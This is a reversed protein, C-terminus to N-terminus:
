GLVLPNKTLAVAVIYGFLGLAIVWAYVRVVMTRGRRLAVMGVGIYLLLAVIKALLWPMTLAAWGWQSALVIASVLLLTDVVHPTITIWKVQLFPSGRLMLIGRFFFGGGSVLACAIHVSKVGEMLLM